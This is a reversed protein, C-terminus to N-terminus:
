ILDDPDDGNKIKYYVHINTGLPKYANLVIKLDSADFGDKLTVRRSIYKAAIPGGSNREEGTCQVAANISGTGSITAINVTPNQTYGSGATVVVVNSVYSNAVNIEMKTNSYARTSGSGYVQNRANANAWILDGDKFGTSTGAGPRTDNNANTKITVSSVNKTVDGDLYTVASVIGVIGTDEGNTYQTNNLVFCNSMVADGVVFARPDTLNISANSTTLSTTNSEVNMVLEVHVNVTATNTTGGDVVNAVYATSMVNVYGSGKTSISFDSDSLGGDDINNEITVINLRDIDIVPSVHSNASTM